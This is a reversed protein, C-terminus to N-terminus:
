IRTDDGFPWFVSLWLPSSSAHSFRCWMFAACHYSSRSLAVFRWRSAELFELGGDEGALDVCNQNPLQVPQTSRELCADVEQGVPALATDPNDGDRLLDVEVPWDPMQYGAQQEADGLHFQLV